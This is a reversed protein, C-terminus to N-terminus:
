CYQPWITSDIMVALSEALARSGDLISRSSTVSSRGRAMRALWSATRALWKHWHQLRRGCKTCTSTATDKVPADHWDSLVHAPAIDLIPSIDEQPFSSSLGRVGAVHADAAHAAKMALMVSSATCSMDVPKAVHM